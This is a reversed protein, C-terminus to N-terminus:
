AANFSALTGSPLEDGTASALRGAGPAGQTYTVVVAQGTTPASALTVILNSGSVSVSNITRAVAAVTAAFQALTPAARLPESFRITVVAAANTAILSKAPGAHLGGAPFGFWAARIAYAAM